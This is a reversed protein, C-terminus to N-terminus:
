TQSGNLWGRVEAEIVPFFHDVMVSQVDCIHDLVTVLDRSAEHLLGVRMKNYGHADGKRMNEFASKMTATTKELVLRTNAVIDRLEKLVLYLPLFVDSRAFSHSIVSLKKVLVKFPELGKRGAAPNPLSGELVERIIM